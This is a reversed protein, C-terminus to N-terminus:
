SELRRVDSFPTERTALIAHPGIKVVVSLLSLYNLYVIVCVVHMNYEEIVYITIADLFLFYIDIGHRDCTPKVLMLWNSNKFLPTMKVSWTRTLKKFIDHM